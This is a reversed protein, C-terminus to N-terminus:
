GNQTHAGVRRTLVIQRITLGPARQIEGEWLPGAKRNGARATRARISRIKNARETRRATRRARSGTRSRRDTPRRTAESPRDTPYPPAKSPRPVQWSNLPGDKLGMWIRM